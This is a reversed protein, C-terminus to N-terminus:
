FLAGKKSIIKSILAAGCTSLLLGCIKGAQWADYGCLVSIFYTIAPYSLYIATARALALARISYYWFLMALGYKFVGTYIVASWMQWTNDAFTEGRAAFAFIILLAPLAFLNRAFALLKFDIEKPLRKATASGFQFMWVSGLVMLDGKIHITFSDKFAILAAGTIIMASGLLQGQTPKERLLIYGFLLSYVMESQNLIAVSAPTAYKLATLLAFFPIATGFTGIIFFPLLYEKKTLRRLRERRAAYPLFFLVAAL